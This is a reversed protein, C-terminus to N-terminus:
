STALTYGAEEIASRVAETSMPRQSTVTVVSTDGAVLDIEVDQVGELATLADTVRGACHGCTMGEVQYTTATSM